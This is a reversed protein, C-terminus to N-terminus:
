SNLDILGQRLAFTVAELRTHVGLKSLLRGIHTRVTAPSITLAAAIQAGSRGRALHTLIELERRTLLPASAPRPSAGGQMRGLLGLLLSNPMVIEGSAARRVSALLEALPQQKPVFGDVGRQIARLLTEEEALSTLILIAMGPCQQRLAPVLELGDDDPLGVDLVLVDPCARQLLARCEAASAAVGLVEVDPATGLMAALAEALVRHDDVLAVRIPRAPTEAETM